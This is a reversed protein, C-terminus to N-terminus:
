VHPYEDALPTEQQVIETLPSGSGLEELDARAGPVRDTWEDAFAEATDLDDFRAMHVLEGDEYVSVEVYHEDDSFTPV